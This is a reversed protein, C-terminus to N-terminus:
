LLAEKPDNEVKEWVRTSTKKKERCHNIMLDWVMPTVQSVFRTNGEKKEKVCCFFFNKSRKLIKYQFLICVNEGIYKNAEQQWTKLVCTDTLM